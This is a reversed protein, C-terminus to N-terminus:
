IHDYLNIKKMFDIITKVTELEDKGLILSDSIKYKTREDNYKTCQEFIHKISFEAGCICPTKPIRDLLYSHSALCHGLRLRTLVISDKRSLQDISKWRNVTLKLNRFKNTLPIQHWNKNWENIISERILSKFDSVIFEYEDDLSSHLSEKALADARENGRINIHSPIWLIIFKKENKMSYIEDYIKIAIPNKNYMQKLSQLCSLSDCCILINRNNTNQALKITKLLAYMEASFISTNNPLKIKIEINKSFIACGTQDGIVSGDTYYTTFNKYLSLKQNFM